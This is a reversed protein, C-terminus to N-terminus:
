IAEFQKKPTRNPPDTQLGEAADRLAVQIGSVLRMRAHSSREVLDSCFREYLQSAIELRDRENSPDLKTQAAETEPTVRRAGSVEAYIEGVDKSM